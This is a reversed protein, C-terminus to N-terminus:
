GDANEPEEDVWGDDLAEEQRAEEDERHYRERIDDSFYADCREQYEENTVQAGQKNLNFTNDRPCVL